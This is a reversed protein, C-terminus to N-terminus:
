KELVAVQKGQLYIKVDHSARDNRLMIIGDSEEKGDAVIKIAEGAEKQSQILEIAYVTDAYKYKIKVSAWDAPLCPEFCLTNGKRRLGIFSELVLQYMWGASGTYWTWGGRGKHNEVGYVDAAIV